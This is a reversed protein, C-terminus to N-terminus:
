LTGSKSKNLLLSDISIILIFTFLFSSGIRILTETFNFLSFSDILYLTTHHVLILIIAYRLFKVTERYISPIYVEYEEKSFTTNVILNRVVATITLAAANMGPTNLFIDIVLGLLFSSLIVWNSNTNVPIKILFYIYLLPTAYGFLNIQNLFLVQILALVIFLIVEFIIEVKM